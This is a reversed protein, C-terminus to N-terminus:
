RAVRLERCWGLPQYWPNSGVFWDSAPSATAERAMPTRPTSAMLPSYPVPVIREDRAAMGRRPTRSVALTTTTPSPVSTTPSASLKM